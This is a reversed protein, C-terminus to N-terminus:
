RSPPATYAGVVEEITVSWDVNASEIMANYPRPDDDVRTTGSGEGRHDAILQIPRGSVASHVALRFTGGGPPSEGTTTWSVQFRGSESTFGVTQNGRGQWTGLARVRGVIQPAPPPTRDCGAM